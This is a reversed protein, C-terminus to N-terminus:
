GVMSDGLLNQMLTSIWRDPQIGVGSRAASQAFNQLWTASGPFGRSYVLGHTRLDLIAPSATVLGPVSQLLVSRSGKM